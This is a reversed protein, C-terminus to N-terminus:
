IETLTNIISDLTDTVSVSSTQCKFIENVVLTRVDNAGSIYADILDQPVFHGDWKDDLMLHNTKAEDPITKAREIITM